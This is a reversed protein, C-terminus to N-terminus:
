NSSTQGGSPREDDDLIEVRLRKRPPPAPPIPEQASPLQPPLQTQVAVERVPSAQRRSRRVRSRRPTEPEPLRLTLENGDSRRLTYRLEPRGAYSLSVELSEGPLEVELPTQGLRRHGAYVVAGSPDSDLRLRPAQVPPAAQPPASMGAPQPMRVLDATQVQPGSRLIVWASGLSVLFTGAVIGAVLLQRRSRDPSPGVQPPRVGSAMSLSRGSGVEAVGRLEDLTEPPRAVSPQRSRVPASLSGHSRSPTAPLPMALSEGAEEREARPVVRDLWARVQEPQFRIGQLYEDLERAMQAARQYRRKPDRDLAALAVRDLVPHVQPNLTSPPLLPASKVKTMTDYDTNGKFLRRGTLVEHLLVGASFIDTQPTCLGTDIQEPAMYGFKGKLAGTHTVEHFATIAKAIGFDVLKVQGDFSIMVNQPSVDRHIIPRPAGTEDLHEHAHALARAVERLIFAAVPPPPAPEGHAASSRMIRLLDQGRVYELAMFLEGDVEGLEYVQVINPHSLRAAIKAENIFMEVFHPDATHIKLIRKIVVYRAFGAVGEVRAKYVDAMGGRGLHSVLLYQGFREPAFPAMM